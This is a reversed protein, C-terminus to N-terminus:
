REECGCSTDSAPASQYRGTRDVHGGAGYRDHHRVWDALSHHPGTENRGLPMLDLYMYTTLGREGGRGFTSYTHFIDGAADKYFVSTGSAEETEFPRTEYNFYVTGRAADDRTFSVHFDHNFDSGFSSVWRFGWGM